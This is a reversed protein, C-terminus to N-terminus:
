SIFDKNITLPNSKGINISFTSAPKLKSSTATNELSSNKIDINPSSYGKNEM